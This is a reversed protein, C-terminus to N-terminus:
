SFISMDVQLGRQRMEEYFHPVSGTAEFHGKVKGDEDYGEQQYRFIDQMQVIGSEVGTIETINTVKRSGDAFRSQQVIINIASAVMERIAQVPLDMGSMM